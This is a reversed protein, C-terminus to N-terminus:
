ADYAVLQLNVDVSGGACDDFTSGDAETGELWVTVTFYHYATQGGALKILWQGHGDGATSNVSAFDGAIHTYNKSNAPLAAPEAKGANEMPALYNGTSNTNTEFMITNNATVTYSNAGEAIAPLDTKGTDNVAVRTLGELAKDKKAQATEGATTATIATGKDLFINLANAGQNKLGFYYVVYDKGWEAAVTKEAMNGNGANKTWIPKVLTAGDKSSIDTTSSAAGVVSHVAETEGSKDTNTVTAGTDSLKGIIVDLTGHDNRATVKSYTLTASRNTTFWAFTGTAGAVATGATLVSLALILKAKTKM